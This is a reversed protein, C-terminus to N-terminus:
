PLDLVLRGCGIAETAESELAQHKQALSVMCLKPQPPIQYYPRIKAPVNELCITAPFQHLAIGIASFIGTVKPKTEGLGYFCGRRLAHVASAYLLFRAVGDVTAIWRGFQVIHKREFPFPTDTHSFKYITELSFPEDTEGFQSTITGVIKGQRKAVIVTQPLATPLCQYWRRLAKEIFLAALSREEEGEVVTIM